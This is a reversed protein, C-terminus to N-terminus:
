RFDVYGSFVGDVTARTNNFGSYCNLDGGWSGSGNTTIGQTYYASSEGNAYCGATFNGNAAFNRAEVHLKYCTNGVSCGNGGPGTGTGAIGASKTLTVTRPPPDNAQGSWAPSVTSTGAENTYSPGFTATGGAPLGGITHSGNGGNVGVGYGPSQLPRGNANVNWNFRVANDLREISGLTIIPLGFPVAATSTTEASPSVGQVSSTAWVNVTYNTGNTLGGITTGSVLTGTAGTQNVRYYYTMEGARNGNLAGPTFTV